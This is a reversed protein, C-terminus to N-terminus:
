PLRSSLLCAPNGGILGGDRFRKYIMSGPAVFNDNGVIAKPLLASYIGLINHNGLKSHGHMSVYSNLSNFSGIISHHGACNYGNFLNFNGICVNHSAMCNQMIINGMGVNKTYIYCSPHIINPFHAGRSDFFNFMEEKFHTNRGIALVVGDGSVFPNDNRDGVYCDMDLGDEIFDREAIFGSFSYEYDLSKELLRICSLVEMAFGGGGYIFLRKRM